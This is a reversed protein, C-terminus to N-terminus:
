QPNSAFASQTPATLALQFLEAAIRQAHEPAVSDFSVILPGYSSTARKAHITASQLLAIAQQQLDKTFYQTTPFLDAEVHYRGRRREVRVFPRHLSCCRNWYGDFDRDTGKGSRREIYGVELANQIRM